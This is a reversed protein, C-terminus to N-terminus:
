EQPPNPLPMWYKPISNTIYPTGFENAPTRKHDPHSALFIELSEFTYAVWQREGDTVLVDTYSNPKKDSLKIWDM